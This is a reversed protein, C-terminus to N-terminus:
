QAPEEARHIFFTEVVEVRNKEIARISIRNAGPELKAKAEFPITVLDAEPKSRVDFWVKRGGVFIM